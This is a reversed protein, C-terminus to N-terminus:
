PRSVEPYLTEIPAALCAKVIASTEDAIIEFEDKEVGAFVKAVLDAPKMKPDTSHAAMATDVYSVHVGTVLVGQPALELRLSNAASWLATKSASYPGRSARWSAVSHIDILVATQAATLIPAFARAVLLPAFFNIEMTHRLDAETIDLVSATQPLRGANNILVTVDSAREVAAAISM